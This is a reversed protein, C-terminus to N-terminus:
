ISLAGGSCQNDYGFICMNIYLVGIFLDGHSIEGMVHRVKRWFNVNKLM